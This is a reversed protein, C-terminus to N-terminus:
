RSLALNYAAWATQLTDVQGLSLGRGFCVGALRGQFFSSPVGATNLAFLYCSTSDVLPAVTNGDVASAAFDRFLRIVNSATRSLTWNAAVIAAAFTPGTAGGLRGDTSSLGNAAGFYWANAGSAAGAAIRLGAGATYARVAVFISSDLELDNITPAGSLYKTSGDGALGGSGGTQAYDGGVFNTSTYSNATGPCVKLKVLASTLNAGACPWVEILLDWVGTAALTRYLATVAALGTADISGGAASLRALYSEIVGGSVHSGRHRYTAHKGM